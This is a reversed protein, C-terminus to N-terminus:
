VIEMFVRLIFLSEEDQGYQFIVGAWYEAGELSVTFQVLQGIPYPAPAPISKGSGPNKAFKLLRRFFAERIHVDFHSLDEDADSDIQIHYSM